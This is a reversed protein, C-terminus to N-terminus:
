IVKARNFCANVLAFYDDVLELRPVDSDCSTDVFVCNPGPDWVNQSNRITARREAIAADVFAIKPLFFPVSTTDCYSGV